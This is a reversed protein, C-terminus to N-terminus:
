HGKVQSALVSRLTQALEGLSFPKRIFGRVVPTRMIPKATEESYASTLIIKLDPRVRVAEAVVEQSSSGPITLDLLLLDIEGGRTRLLDIAVSGSAAEVTKFGSKRLMKAEALRLADEDEVILVTTDRAPPASEEIPLVRGAGPKAGSEACPLLIQFTSGKGLESTIEIAGGLSSVIGHVVALGLGRGSFKTTFFPELVRAKTEASMGRGTDSVALQVYWGPPLAKAAAKAQDVAIHGTSVRIVGDRDGIAESANVVLNMVIQSLQGTRACVASLDESLNTVLTAHRSIAVKLLGLMGQVVKSIEVSELIDSDRGAYVMLQRVIESGRIAVDRIATLQEDPRSGTALEAMALETQALVAGLLNNFDHAIGGALTGLSELKQRAFSEQEKQRLARETQKHETIDSLVAVSGQPQGNGDLLPEANGLLDISTGDEFAVTLEYNRSSKGTLAAACLPVERFPIATGDRLLRHNMPREGTSRVWPLNGGPPQRLLTYAARNGTIRSCEADHAILIVVPAADMIAQLKAAETRAQAESQRLAEEARKRETVDIGM